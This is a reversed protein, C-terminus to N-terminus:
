IKFIHSRARSAIKFKNLGKVRPTIEKVPPIFYRFQYTEHKRPSGTCKEIIKEIITRIKKRIESIIEEITM